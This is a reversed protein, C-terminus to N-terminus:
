SCINQLYKKLSNEVVKKGAITNEYFLTRFGSIDFPLNGRVKDCLLITPKGIAHSYGIEYFVNPNDPTIEAVVVSSEKISRIIDNLIPTGSYYEDARICEYGFKETVPRIVDDYLENYEKSFQMVVFASPKSGQKVTINYVEFEDASGMKFEIPSDKIHINASCIFINNIFLQIQSGKVNIRFHIETDLDYDELKGASSLIKWDRGEELLDIFFAKYKRSYGCNIEKGEITYLMAMVSTEHSKCKLIFCLEGSNFHIDSRLKVRDGGFTTNEIETRKAEVQSPIYQIHGDKVKASNGSIIALNKVTEIKSM